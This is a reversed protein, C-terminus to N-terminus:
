ARVRTRLVSATLLGEETLRYTNAGTWNLLDRLVLGTLAHRGGEMKKEIITAFEIADEGLSKSDLATLLIDREVASLTVLGVM